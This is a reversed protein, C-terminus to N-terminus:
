YMNFHKVSATVKLNRLHLRLLSGLAISKLYWVGCFCAFFSEIELYTSDCQSVCPLHISPKIERWINLKRCLFVKLASLSVM